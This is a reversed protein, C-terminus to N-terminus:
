RSLVALGEAQFRWPLRARDDIDFFRIMRACIARRL